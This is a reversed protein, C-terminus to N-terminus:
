PSRRCWIPGTALLLDDVVDLVAADVLLREYEGIAHLLPSRDPVHGLERRMEARAYGLHRLRGRGAAAGCSM